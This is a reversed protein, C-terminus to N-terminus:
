IIVSQINSSPVSPSNTLYSLSCGPATALMMSPIRSPRSLNAGTTEEGSSALLMSFLNRRKNASFRGLSLQLINKLGAIEDFDRCILGTLIWGTSSAKVSVQTRDENGSLDKDAFASAM